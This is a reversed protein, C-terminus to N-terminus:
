HPQEIRWGELIVFTELLGVNSVKSL